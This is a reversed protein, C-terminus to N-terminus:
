AMVEAEAFWDWFSTSTHDYPGWERQWGKAVYEATLSLWPEFPLKDLEFCPMAPSLWAATVHQHFTQFETWGFRGNPRPRCHDFIRRRILGVGGIHRAPELVRREWPPAVARGAGNPLIGFVETEASLSVMRSLEDLWGPCVVIDNDIKVFRAGEDSNHDSCDLYRNMAAVPGGFASPLFFAARPRPRRQTPDAYHEVMWESTGDESADDFVYLTDVQQWDTNELLATFSAQTFELRNHAVYLIDLSM